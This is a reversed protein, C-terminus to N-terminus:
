KRAAAAERMQDALVLGSKTWTPREDDALTTRRQNKLATIIGDAIAEEDPPLDIYHADTGGAERTEPLNSTLVPAGCARAELVPIGFGEYISPFVFLDTGTYLPPLHKREIFGLPVLDSAEAGSVLQRLKEDKWGEGGVLALKHDPIM